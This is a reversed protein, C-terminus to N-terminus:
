KDVITLLAGRQDLEYRKGAPLTPLPKLLGRQVLEDVNKAARGENAMMFKTIADYLAQQSPLAKADIGMSAAAESAEPGSSPSTANNPRKRCGGALAAATLLIASLWSLRHM